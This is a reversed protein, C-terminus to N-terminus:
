VQYSIVSRDFVSSILMIKEKKESQVNQKFFNRPKISSGRKFPYYLRSDLGLNGMHAESFVSRCVELRMTVYNRRVILLIRASDAFKRV